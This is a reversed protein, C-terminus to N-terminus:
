GRRAFFRAAADVSNETIICDTHGSGYANRYSKHGRRMGDVVKINLIAALHETRYDEDTAAYHTGSLVSKKYARIMEAFSAAKRGFLRRHTTPFGKPLTASDILLRKQLGAFVQAGCNRM